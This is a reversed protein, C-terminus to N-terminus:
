RPVKTTKALPEDDDFSLKEVSHMLGAAPDAVVSCERQYDLIPTLTKTLALKNALDDAHNNEKAKPASVTKDKLLVSLMPAVIAFVVTLGIIGLSLGMINLTASELAATTASLGLLQAKPLFPLFFMMLLAVPILLILFPIFPLFVLFPLLLALLMIPIVSLLVLPLFKFVSESFENAISKSM